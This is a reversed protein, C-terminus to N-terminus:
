PMNNTHTAVRLFLCMKLLLLSTEKGLSGWYPLAEKTCAEMTSAEMTSAEFSVFLMSEFQILDRL